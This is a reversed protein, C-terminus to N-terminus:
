LILIDGMANQRAAVNALSFAMIWDDMKGQIAAM